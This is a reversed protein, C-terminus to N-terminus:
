KNINTKKSELSKKLFVGLLYKLSSLADNNAPIPYDVDKPNDNSDVLAVVKVGQKKAEELALRDKQIDLILVAQPIKKMNMLGGMKEELKDLEKKLKIKELKTLYDFSGKELAEKNDKLYKLRKSIIGFNTFTGGLWRENVYPMDLKRAVKEVLAKAQKKTGVILIKEDRSILGQLYDLAEKYLEATKELNIISIGKRIGFVYSDMQPNRASKKHGFHVGSKLMEEISIDYKNDSSTEKKAAVEGTKVSETEESLGSDNKKETM